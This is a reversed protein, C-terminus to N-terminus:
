IKWKNTGLGMRLLENDTRGGKESRFFLNVWDSIVGVEEDIQLEVSKARIDEYLSVLTRELVGVAEIVQSLESNQSLLM